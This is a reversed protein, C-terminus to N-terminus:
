FGRYVGTSVTITGMRNGSVLAHEWIKCILFEAKAQEPRALRESRQVIQNSMSRGFKVDQSSFKEVLLYRAVRGPWSIFTELM